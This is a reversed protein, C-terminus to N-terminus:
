PNRHSEYRFWRRGVDIRAGPTVVVPVGPRLREAEAAGPRHLLTGNASHLDVVEVRWGSLRVRVHRRSM